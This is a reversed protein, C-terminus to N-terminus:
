LEGWAVDRVSEEADLLAAVAELLPRAGDLPARRRAFLGRPQNMLYVHWEDPDDDEPDEGTLSACCLWYEDDGVVYEVFWGWDEHNPYSTEFGRAALERALWWALEAGYVGPNVQAEESLFPRFRTSRFTVATNM